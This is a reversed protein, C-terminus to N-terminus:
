RQRISSEYDSPSIGYNKKFCKSFYNTNQFGVAAAIEAIGLQTTDLLEKAKELRYQKIYRNITMDMCRKFVSCLYAYNLHLQNSLVEITLSPDDYHEQIYRIAKDVFPNHRAVPQQAASAALRGSWGRLRNIFQEPQMTGTITRLETLLERALASDELKDAVSLFGRLFNLYIESLTQPSIRASRLQTQMLMLQEDIQAQEAAVIAALLPAARFGEPISVARTNAGTDYFQIMADSRLRNKLLAKCALTAAGPLDSLRRIPPCVGFCLPTQAQESLLIQLKQLETCLSDTDIPTDSAFLLAILGDHTECAQGDFPLSYAQLASLLQIRNFEPDKLASSNCQRLTGILAIQFYARRAWPLQLYDCTDAIPQTLKKEGYALLQSLFQRRLSVLYQSNQRSLSALHQKKLDESDITVLLADLAAKLDDFRLPKLLYKVVGLEVAEQAYSFESFGSIIIYKTRPSRQKGERIFQLGSIGPMNIDVFAIDPQIRELLQLGDRGNAAEGCVQINYDQWPFTTVLTQRFFFEDDLIIIQYM